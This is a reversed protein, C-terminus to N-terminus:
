NKEVLSYVKKKWEKRSEWYRGIHTELYGIALKNNRAVELKELLEGQTMEGDKLLDRVKAVFAREEESMGEVVPDLPTMALTKIDISYGATKTGIREKEPIMIFHMEFEDGSVKRAFWVEDASNILTGGGKMSIGNKLAHNLVIVTGGSSRIKKCLVNFKNMKNEDYMGGGLFFQLSDFVVAIKDFFKDHANEYLGALVENMGEDADDMMDGNIYHIQDRYKQLFRDFGRDKLIDIGNDRDLYIVELGCDSLMGSLAFALWTKGTGAPAYIINISRQAITRDLYFERSEMLEVADPDVAHKHIFDLKSM